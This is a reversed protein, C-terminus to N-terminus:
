KYVGIHHVTEVCAKVNEPPTDHAIGEATCFIYGGEEMGSKVIRETERIVNERSGNELVSLPDINGMLCKANGTLGAIEGVNIKEGLNIASADVYKIAAQLHELSSESGHYFSFADYASIIQANENAHPAAINIFDDVSIFNSTALCDGLWLADAGAEIQAQAWIRNCKTVYKMWDHLLGPDELMMMLMAEIGILLAVGSFPAAIRGALCISDGFHRKLGRLGELYRPMRGFKEPEPVQLRNLMSRSPNLYKLVAPPVIEDDTVEIGTYEWEVLDDPFLIFWDYDFKEVVNIGTKIMTGPNNRYERHSVGAQWVDFDIGLPFCPIRSPKELAVCKKLDDIIGQYAM